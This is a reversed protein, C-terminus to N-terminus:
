YEQIKFVSDNILLQGGYGVGVEVIKEGINDKFYRQLDSTVKIYRLTTPSIKGIQPYSHKIPNGILDNEKFKEMLNLLQPSQARIIELYKKGDEKTVHELIAQYSPHRKFNEFVKNHRVARQVFAAYLGQDSESRNEKKAVFEKSGFRQIFMSKCYNIALAPNTLAKAIKAVFSSM